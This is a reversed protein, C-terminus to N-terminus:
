KFDRNPKRAAGIITDIPLRTTSTEFINDIRSILRSFSTGSRGICGFIKGRSLGRWSLELSGTVIGIRKAESVHCWRRGVTSYWRVSNQWKILLPLLFLFSSLKKRLTTSNETKKRKNLLATQILINKMFPMLRSIQNYNRGFALSKNLKTRM